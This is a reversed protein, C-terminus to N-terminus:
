KKRQIKPLEHKKSQNSDVHFALGNMNIRFYCIEIVVDLNKGKKKIIEDERLEM